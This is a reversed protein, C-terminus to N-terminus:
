TTEVPEAEGLGVRPPPAQRVRSGKKVTTLV